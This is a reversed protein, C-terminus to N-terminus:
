YAGFDIDVEVGFTEALDSNNPIVYGFIVSVNEAFKWAVAPMLAGVGSESGQYDVNVWLKESIESVTREWTLMVGDADSDGQADLLLSPNGWFWGLSVRGLDFENISFTKAGKLYFINQDTKDHETGFNYGGFALAPAEDFIAGEPVGAKANFYIPYDDLAGLGSVHDFGFEMGIKEEVPWLGTTLGIYTITDPRSGSADSESPPYFDATLHFTRNAQIDTSPSWSHTSPTACLRVPVALGLM